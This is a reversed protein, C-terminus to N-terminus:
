SKLLILNWKILVRGQQTLPYFCPSWNPLYYMIWLLGLGSSSCHGHPHWPYSQNFLYCTSNVLCIIYNHPPAAHLHPLLHITSSSLTPLLIPYYKLHKCYAMCLELLEVSIKKFRCLTRHPLDKKKEMKLHLFHPMSFNFLKSLNECVTIFGFNLGLSDSHLTHLKSSQTSLTAM